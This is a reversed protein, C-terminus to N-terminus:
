WIILSPLQAPGHPNGQLRRCLCVEQKMTWRGIKNVSYAIPSTLSGMILKLLTAIQKLLCVFMSEADEISIKAYLSDDSGNRSPKIYPDM